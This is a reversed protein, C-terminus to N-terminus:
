RQGNCKIIIDTRRRISGILTNLPCFTSILRTQFQQFIARRVNCRVAQYWRVGIRM